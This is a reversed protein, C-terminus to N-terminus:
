KLKFYSLTISTLESYISLRSLLFNIKTELNKSVKYIVDLKNESEKKEVKWSKGALVSEYFNQAEKLSDETKIVVFLSFVSESERRHIELIKAGKKPYLFEQPFEAPPSKSVAKRFDEMEKKALEQLKEIM